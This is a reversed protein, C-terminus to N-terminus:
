ANSTVEKDKNFSRGIMAMADDLADFLRSDAEGFPVHSPHNNMYAIVRKYAECVPSNPESILCQEYDDHIAGTITSTTAQGLLAHLIAVQINNLTLTTTM